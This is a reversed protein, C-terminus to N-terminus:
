ILESLPVSVAQRLTDMTWIEIHTQPLLVAVSSARPQIQMIAALVKPITLRWGPGRPSIEIPLLRLEMAVSAEDRFDSAAATQQAAEAEVHTRIFQCRPDDDVEAPSLLRCRGPGGVLLWANLSESGAIWAAHRVLSTPLLIRQDEDVKSIAWEM